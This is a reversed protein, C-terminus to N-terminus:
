GYSNDDGDSNSNPHDNGFTHGYGNADPYRRRV